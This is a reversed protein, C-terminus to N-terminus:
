YCYVYAVIVFTGFNESDELPGNQSGFNESEELPGIQSRSSITLGCVLIIPLRFKETNKRFNDM